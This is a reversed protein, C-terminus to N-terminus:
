FLDTCSKFLGLLFGALENYGNNDEIWVKWDMRVLWIKSIPPLRCFFLQWLQWKFYRMTFAFIM